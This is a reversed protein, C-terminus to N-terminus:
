RGEAAEGYTQSLQPSGTIAWDLGAGVVDIERGSALRVVARGGPLVDWAAGPVTRVVVTGLYLGADNGFWPLEEPDERWRPPLQDLAVLSGPTDDLPVGAEEARARLLSCESLLEAVGEPDREFASALPAPHAGGDRRKRWSDLFPLKM